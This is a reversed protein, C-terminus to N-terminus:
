GGVPPDNIITPDHTSFFQDNHFVSLAFHHHSETPASNFGWLAFHWADHRHVVFWPPLPTPEGDQLWQIPNTAFQAGSLNDLAFTILSLGQPAHVPFSSGEIGSVTVATSTSHFFVNFRFIDMTKEERSDSAAAQSQASSFLVM